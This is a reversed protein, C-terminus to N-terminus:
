RGWLSEGTREAFHISGGIRQSPAFRALNQRFRIMAPRAEAKNAADWVGAHPASGKGAAHIEAASAM